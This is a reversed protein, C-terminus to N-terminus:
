EVGAFLRQAIQITIKAVKLILANSIHLIGLYAPVCVFYLVLKKVANTANVRATRHYSLQGIASGAFFGYVWGNSLM